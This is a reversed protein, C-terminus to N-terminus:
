LLHSSCTKYSVKILKSANSWSLMCTWLLGFKRGFCIAVVFHHTRYYFSDRERMLSQCINFPFWGCHDSTSWNCLPSMTPIFLQFTDVFFCVTQYSNWFHGNWKLIYTKFHRRWLCSSCSVDLLRIHNHPGFFLSMLGRFVSFFFLYCLPYEPFWFGLGFHTNAVYEVSFIYKCIM